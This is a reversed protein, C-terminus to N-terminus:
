DTDGNEAEAILKALTKHHIKKGDEDTTPIGLIFAKEKLSLEKEEKPLEKVEPTQKTENKFSWGDKLHEEQATTHVAKYAGNKYMAKM